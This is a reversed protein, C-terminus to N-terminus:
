GLILWFVAIGVALMLLADDVTLSRSPRVEPTLSRAMGVYEADATGAVVERFSLPPTAVQAPPRAFRWPSSGPADV